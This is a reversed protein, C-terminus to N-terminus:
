NRYIQNVRAQVDDYLIGLNKKRTEGNGYRGQIVDKALKDLDIKKTYDIAIWGKIGDYETLGWKYAGGSTFRTVKVVENFPVAGLFFFRPM